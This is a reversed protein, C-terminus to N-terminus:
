SAEMSHTSDIQGVFESSSEWAKKKEGDDPDIYWTPGWVNALNSESSVIVGHQYYAPRTTPYIRKNKFGGGPKPNVLMLGTVGERKKTCEEDEYLDVGSIHVVNVTYQTLFEHHPYSINDRADDLALVGSKNIFDCFSEAITELKHLDEYSQVHHHSSPPTKPAPMLIIEEMPAFQFRDPSDESIGIAEYFGPPADSRRKGGVYIRSRHKSVDHQEMVLELLDRHAQWHAQLKPFYKAYGPLPARSNDGLINRPAVRRLARDDTVDLFDQPAVANGLGNLAYIFCEITSDMNFFLSALQYETERHDRCKLQWAHMEYFHLFVGHIRAFMGKFGSRFCGFWEGKNDLNYDQVALLAFDDLDYFPELDFPLKFDEM